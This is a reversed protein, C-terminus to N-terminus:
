CAPTETPRNALRVAVHAWRLLFAQARLSSSINDATCAPWDLSRAGHAVDRFEPIGRVRRRHWGALLSSEMDYAGVPLSDRQMIRSAARSDCAKGRPMSASGATASSMSCNNLASKMPLVRQFGSAEENSAACQTPRSGPIASLVQAVELEDIRDRRDQAPSAAGVVDMGRHPAVFQM